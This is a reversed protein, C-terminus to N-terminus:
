SSAPGREFLPPGWPLCSAAHDGAWGGARRHSYGAELDRRDVCEWCNRGVVAVASNRGVLLCSCCALAWHIHESGAGNRHLGELEAGAAVVTGGAGAEDPSAAM